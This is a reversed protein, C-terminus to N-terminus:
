GFSGASSVWDKFRYSIRENKANVSQFHFSIYRLFRIIYEASSNVAQASCHLWCPSCNQYSFPVYAYYPVLRLIRLTQSTSYARHWITSISTSISRKIKGCNLRAHRKAYHKIKDLDLLDMQAPNPDINYIQINYASQDPHNM